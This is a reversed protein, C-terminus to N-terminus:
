CRFVFLNLLFFKNLCGIIIIYMCVFEGLHLKKMIDEYAPENSLAQLLKDFWDSRKCELLEHVLKMGRDRKISCGDIEEIETKSLISDAFLYPTLDKAECRQIFDTVRQRFAEQAVQLDDHKFETCM